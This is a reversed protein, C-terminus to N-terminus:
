APPASDACGISYRHRAPMPHRYRASRCRWPPLAASAFSVAPKGTNQRYRPSSGPHYPASWRNTACRRFSSGPRVAWRRACPAHVFWFIDQIRHIIRASAGFEALRGHFMFALLLIPIEVAQPPGIIRDARNRQVLKLEVNVGVLDLHNGELLHEVGIGRDAHRQHILMPREALIERAIFNQIAM